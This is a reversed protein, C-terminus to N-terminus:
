KIKYNKGFVQRGVLFNEYDIINKIFFSIVGCRKLTEEIIKLELRKRKVKNNLKSYKDDANIYFDLHNLKIVEDYENQYYSRTEIYLKELKTELNILNKSIKYFYKLYKSHINPITYLKLNLNERNILFDDKVMKEFKDIDM